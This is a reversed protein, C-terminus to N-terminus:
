LEALVMRLGFVFGEADGNVAKQEVYQIDVTLALYDNLVLRAYAEAVWSYDIDLNGGDVFAYGIGVNDGERGWLGGNITLGGSFLNKFNIAADDDQTGIRVFVGVTDGLEQDFSLFAARLTEKYEGSPDLFEDSTGDLILRYTGKGPPADLKYDFQLGYFQYANGDQNSSVRLLVARFEVSGIGWKLAAGLDYSPFFGNPGNVLAENMFQAYEDNALANVDLYETADILGATLGLSGGRGLDFTHKYWATLLYDRGSGNIDKVQDELAAAWAHLVFPSSENLGNGIAFGLKTFLEDRENLRFSFEPQLSLAGGGRQELDDAEVDMVQYAGALVGGVSFKDTLDYAQAARSVLSLTFILFAAVQHSSFPPSTSKLHNHVTLRM